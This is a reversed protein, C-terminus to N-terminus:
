FFLIAPKTSKYVTESFNSDNLEVEKGPAAKQGSSSSKKSSGSSSGSDASGSGSDNASKVADLLADRM